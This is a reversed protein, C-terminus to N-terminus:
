FQVLERSLKYVYNVCFKGNFQGERKFNLREALKISKTNLSQICLKISKIDGSSFSSFLQIIALKLADIAYGKHQEEPIIWYGLEIEGFEIPFFTIGGVPKNTVADVIITRYDYKFDINLNYTYALAMLKVEIEAKSMRKVNKADSFETFFDMTVKDTYWSINEMSLQVLKIKNNKAQLKRSLERMKISMHKESRM